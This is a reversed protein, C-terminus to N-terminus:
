RDHTERSRPSKRAFFNVGQVFLEKSLDETFIFTEGSTRV